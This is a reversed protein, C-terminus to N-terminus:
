APTMTMSEFRYVIVGWFTVVSERGNTDVCPCNAESRPRQEHDLLTALYGKSHAPLGHGRAHARPESPAKPGIVEPTLGIGVIDYM